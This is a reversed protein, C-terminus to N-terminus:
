QRAKLCAVGIVMLVVFVSFGYPLAGIVQSWM